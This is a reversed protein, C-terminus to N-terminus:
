KPHVVFVWGQYGSPVGSSKDFTGEVAAIGVGLVAAAVVSTPSSHMGGNIPTYMLPAGAMGLRKMYRRNVTRMSLLQQLQVSQYMGPATEVRFETPEILRIYGRVPVPQRNIEVMCEVLKNVTFLVRKTSDDNIAEISQARCQGSLCVAYLLFLTTKM